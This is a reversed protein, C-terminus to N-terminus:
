TEWNHLNQFFVLSCGVQIQYRGKDLYEIRIKEKEVFIEIIKTDTNETEKSILVMFTNNKTCDKALVHKCRDPLSYQMEVDDFTKFTDHDVTCVASFLCLFLFVSFLPWILLTQAIWSLVAANEDGNNTSKYFIFLCVFSFTAKFTLIFSNSHFKM